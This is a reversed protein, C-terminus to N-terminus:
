RRGHASRLHAALAGVATGFAAGISAPVQQEHYSLIGMICLAGLALAGLVCVGVLDSRDDM